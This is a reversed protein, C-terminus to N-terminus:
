AVHDFVADALEPGCHASADRQEANHEPGHQESSAHDLQPEGAALEALGRAAFVIPQHNNFIGFNGHHQESNREPGDYEPDNDFVAFDNFVSQDGLEASGHDLQQLVFADDFVAFDDPGTAHQEVSDNHQISHDLETSGPIYDTRNHDPGATDNDVTDNHHQDLKHEAGAGYRDFAVRNRYHLSTEEEHNSDGQTNLM